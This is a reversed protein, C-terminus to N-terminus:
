DSWAKAKAEDAKPDFEDIEEPKLQQGREDIYHNLANM